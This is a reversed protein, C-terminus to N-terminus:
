SAGGALYAALAANYAGVPLGPTHADWGAKFAKIARQREENILDVLDSLDRCLIADEPAMDDGWIVEGSPDILHWGYGHEYSEDASSESHYRITYRSM